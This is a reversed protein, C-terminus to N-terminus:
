KMILIKGCGLEKIDYPNHTILILSSQLKKFIKLIEIRRIQDLSATPEDLIVLPSNKLRAIATLIRQKEGGSCENPYKRAFSEPLDVESLAQGILEQIEKPSPINNSNAIIVEALQKGINMIPNLANEQFIYSVHKRLFWADNARNEEYFWIQGKVQADTIGAIAQGTTTKGCGSPGYIAIKEGKALELSLDKVITKQNRLIQLNEVKLM